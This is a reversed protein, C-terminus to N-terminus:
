SPPCDRIIGKAQNYWFEVCDANDQYEKMARSINYDHPCKTSYDVVGYLCYMVPYDFLRMYPCNACDISILRIGLELPTKDRGMGEGM